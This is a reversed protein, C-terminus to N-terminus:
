EGSPFDKSGNIFGKLFLREQLSLIEPAYPTPRSIRFSFTEPPFPPLRLFGGFREGPFEQLVAEKKWIDKFFKKIIITIPRKTLLEGGLSQKKEPVEVMAQCNKLERTRVAAM